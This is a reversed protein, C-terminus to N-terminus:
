WRGVKPPAGFQKEFLKTLWERHATILADFNDLNM